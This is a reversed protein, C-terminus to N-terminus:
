QPCRWSGESYHIWFRQEPGCVTQAQPYLLCFCFHVCHYALWCLLVCLWFLLRALLLSSFSCHSYMTRSRSGSFSYPFPRCLNKQNLSYLYRVTSCLYSKSGVLIIEARCFQNAHFRRRRGCYGGGGCVKLCLAHISQLTLKHGCFVKYM